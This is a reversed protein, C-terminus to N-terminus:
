YWTVPLLIYWQICHFAICSRVISYSLMHYMESWFPIKAGLLAMKPLRHWFVARRTASHACIPFAFTDLTVEPCPSTIIGNHRTRRLHFLPTAYFFCCKPSLIPWFHLKQGFIWKNQLMMWIKQWWWSLVGFLCPKQTSGTARPVVPRGGCGM